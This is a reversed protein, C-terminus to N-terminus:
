MRMRVVNAIRGRVRCIVDTEGLGAVSAPLEITVPDAGPNGSARVAVVRAKAGGITVEIESARANRLGSGLLLVQKTRVPLARRRGSRCDSIPSGNPFGSVPGACSVGTWFGPATHAILLRASARSGDARSVNMRAPGPASATPVIFNIQGWGASAHVLKAPRTVGSADTVMVTLGGDGAM